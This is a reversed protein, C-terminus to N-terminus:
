FITIECAFVACVSLEYLTSLEKLLPWQVTDLVAHGAKVTKYLSVSKHQAFTAIDIASPSPILAVFAACFQRM